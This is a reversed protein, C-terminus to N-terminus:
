GFGFANLSEAFGDNLFLISSLSYLIARCEM